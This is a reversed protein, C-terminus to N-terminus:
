GLRYEVIRTRHQHRRCPSTTIAWGLKQLEGIRASVEYIHGSAFDERCLGDPYARLLNLVSSRVTGKPPEMTDFTLQNM